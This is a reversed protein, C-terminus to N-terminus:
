RPTLPWRHPGLKVMNIWYGQANILTEATMKASHEVVAAPSETLEFHHVPKWPSLTGYDSTGGNSPALVLSKCDGGAFVSQGAVTQPKWKQDNKQECKEEFLGATHRHPHRSDFLSPRCVQAKTAALRQADASGHSQRTRCFVQRSVSSARLTKIIVVSNVTIMMTMTLASWPKRQSLAWLLNLLGLLGMGRFDTKPDNGQFGIECWQKSIRATLPTDPRLEKWLQLASVCVCM